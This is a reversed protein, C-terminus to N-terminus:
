RKRRSANNTDMSRRLWQRLRETWRPRQPATPASSTPAFPFPPPPFMAPMAAAGSASINLAHRPLADELALQREELHGQREELRMVNQHLVFPAESPAARDAAKQRAQEAALSKELSKEVDATLRKGLEATLRKELGKLLDAMDDKVKQLEGRLPSSEAVAAVDNLVSEFHRLMDQLSNHTSELSAALTKQRADQDQQSKALAERLQRVEQTMRTAAESVTASAVGLGNKESSLGGLANELAVSAGLIHQATETLQQALQTSHQSAGNVSNAAQVVSGALEGAAEQLSFVTDNLQQVLSLEPADSAAQSQANQWLPLFRRNALRIIAQEVTQCKRTYFSNALSAAFTFAIGFLTCVSASKIGTLLGGISQQLQTSQQFVSNYAASSNTAGGGAGTATVTLGLNAIATSIGSVTGLLGLFVFIGAWYRAWHIYEYYPLADTDVQGTSLTVRLSQVVDLHDIKDLRRRMGEIDDPSPEAALTEVAAAEQRVRAWARRLTNGVVALGCCMLAFIIKGELPLNSVLDILM